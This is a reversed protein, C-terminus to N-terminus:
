IITFLNLLQMQLEVLLVGGVQGWGVVLGGVVVVVVFGEIRFGM